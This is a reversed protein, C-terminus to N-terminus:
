ENDLNIVIDIRRNRQRGERTENSAIPKEEGYGISTIQNKDMDMNAMLYERVSQARQDSLLKNKRASGLADTHGEIVYHSDPFDRLAQQVKSLLSFYEPQIIAQGSPFTLGVLRITIKDGEYIVRAENPKFLEKVKKIRAERALKKQLETSYNAERERVANLEEQLTGNEQVLTRKDKKLNSIYGSITRVSSEFGADFRPTYNFQSGLETLIEEFKLILKEWNEDKEALTAITKALYAAHRAQYTAEQALKVAEDKAYRNSELIQETQALLNRADTFTRYAWEDAKQERALQVAERAEGLIGNKIALLEAQRYVQEAETGYERADDVDDDELNTAANKFIDEAEEWLEQAYLPAEADLAADRAEIASKITVMALNIVKEAAHAYQASQELLERIESTGEKEEYAKNAEEFYEVAQAYNEPSLVEGNDGQIKNILAEYDAFFKEKASSQAMVM